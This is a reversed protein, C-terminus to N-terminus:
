AQSQGDRHQQQQLWKAEALLNAMFHHIHLSIAIHIGAICYSQMDVRTVAYHVTVHLIIINLQCYISVAHQWLFIILM